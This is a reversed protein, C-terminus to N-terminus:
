RVFVEVQHGTLGAHHEKRVADLGEGLDAPHQGRAAPGKVGLSREPRVGEFDHQLGPQLWPKDSTRDSDDGPSPSRIRAPSGELRPLGPHARRVRDRGRQRRDGTDAM